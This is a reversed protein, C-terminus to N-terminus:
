PLHGSAVLSLDISLTGALSISLFPGVVFLFM